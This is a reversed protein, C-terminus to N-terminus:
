VKTCAWGMKSKNIEDGMHYEYQNYSLFNLLVKNRLLGPLIITEYIRIKVNKSLPHSSLLSHMSHYCADASNLRGKIEEQIWNKDTVTMELYKFNAVNEFSINGTKVYQNQDHSVFM